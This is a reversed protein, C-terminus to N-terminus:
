SIKTKQNKLTKIALIDYVPYFSIEEGKDNEPYHRKNNKGIIDTVTKKLNQLCITKLRFLHQKARDENELMLSMWKRLGSKVANGEKGALKETYNLLKDVTWYGTNDNLFYPGFSFSGTVKGKNDKILLERNIMSSLDEVFSDQLKYFMLCSKERNSLKKAMSCLNEALNYGSHFPFSSKIFAIGACATLGNKLVEKQQDSKCKPMVKSEFMEKTESEFNKLYSKVYDLAFDARCIFTFDDGGLVVPRIPIFDYEGPFCSKVDNFASHAAAM